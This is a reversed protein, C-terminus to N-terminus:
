IVVAVFEKCIRCYLIYSQVTCDSVYYAPHELEYRCDPCLYKFWNIKEDYFRLAKKFM